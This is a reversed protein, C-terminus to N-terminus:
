ALAEHPMRNSLYVFHENQLMAVIEALMKQENAVFSIGDKAM